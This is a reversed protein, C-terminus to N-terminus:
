LERPWSNLLSTFVTFLLRTSEREGLKQHNSATKPTGESPSDDGGNEAKMKVCHEGQTHALTWM